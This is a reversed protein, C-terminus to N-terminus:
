FIAMGTETTLMELAEMGLVSNGQPNLPPSWVAVAYKGPHLAAIGGGVGSKGPLGVRFAFEGAEDYFGCTQMLANIRQSERQSLIREGDGVVKGGSAFVLFSKALQACNMELSCLHYYLDLVADVENDINGYSRLMFAMARNRHGFDAESDAVKENFHIDQDDAMTRVFDLIEKKPDEFLSCLIDAIVIAGSNIFPNRPIGSEYELLVLSNFSTGAPEVDMRDWIEEGLHTMALALSFVKAISQSSFKELHDGFSFTAGDLCHLQMGLKHAPVKALEPIYEAVQGESELQGLQKEIKTLIRQYQM